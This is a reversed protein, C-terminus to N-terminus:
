PKAIRYFKRASSVSVAVVYRDGFIVPSVGVDAWSTNFNSRQQLSYGSSSTPWSILLSDGSRAISLVPLNSVFNTGLKGIYTDSVGASTLTDNGLAVSSSFIGSMYLEGNGAFALDSAGDTGAAGWSKVWLLTGNSNYKALFMDSGGQSILNTTGFSATGQFFGAVLIDGAGDVLAAGTSETGTGGIARVWLLSGSSSYKAFFLDQGGANPLNTSGFNLPNSAFVGTVYLNGAADTSATQGMDIGPGVASRAWQLTGAADYKVVFVDQVGSNSLAVSSFMANARYYGVAYVSNDAATAVDYTVDDECSGGRVVWVTNGDSDYKAVYADSRFISCSQNAVVSQGGFTGTQRFYGGLFIHNGSDVALNICHDAGGGGAQRVWVFAGTSDYKAVYIDGVGVATLNTNGFMAEDTFYGSVYVDNAHDLAINPATDTSAGGFQRVWIFNGNSDYKALYADVDGHSVLNTPGFTISTTFHGSAYVNGVADVAIGGQADSDPGGAARAWIFEPPSAPALPEGSGAVKLLFGDAAGVAVLNFDSFSASGTFSGALFLNGSGDAALGRGFDGEAGGFHDAAMLNGNADYKLLFVDASVSSSTNNLTASGLRLVSSEFFGTVCINGYADVVLHRGEDNGTGQGGQAWLVNGDADYKATFLDPTGAAGGNTLITTGMTMTTSEFYGTVVPNGAADLAVASGYDLSSGGASRAWLVNGTPGYKVLAFDYHAATFAIGGFTAPGGFRGTVYVNGQGDVAIGKSQTDGGGANSKAWAVSGAADYKVVFWNFSGTNQLTIHGFTAPADRFWGTLYCQGLNDCAVSFGTDNGPGGATRVWQVNGDTDLKAAYIEIPLTTGGNTVTINGMTLTPSLYRGAIYSNGASDVAISSSETAGVATRAWLVEGAPNLKAVYANANTGSPSSNTLTVSGIPLTPSYFYGTVYVNGSADTDASYGLEFNAGGIQRAWAVDLATAFLSSTCLSLLLFLLAMARM